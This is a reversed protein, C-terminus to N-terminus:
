VSAKKRKKPVDSCDLLFPAIRYGRSQEVAQCDKRLETAAGKPTKSRLYQRHEWKGKSFFWAVLYIGHSWGPNSELYKGVLQSEISDSIESNQARKVEIILTILDDGNGRSPLAEIKIDVRENWRNVEVERNVAVSKLDRKLWAAIEKSVFEEREPSNGAWVRHLNHRQLDDQFRSLSGLVVDLLDNANRIISGHSIRVLRLLEHPQVPTWALLARTQRAENLNWRYINAEADPLSNLFRQIEAIEGRRTLTQLLNRRLSICEDTPSVFTPERSLPPDDQPPFLGFFLLLLDGIQRSEMQDISKEERRGLERVNEVFLKKASKPNGAILPWAKDKLRGEAFFWTVGAVARSVDYLLEADDRKIADLRALIFKDAFAPDHKLLHLLGDRMSGHKIDSGGIFEALEESLERTWSSEFARLDLLWGEGEGKLRRDLLTRLWGRSRDPELQCALRVLEQHEEEGNNFADVVAGIWKERVEDQLEVNALIEDRLWEIARYAAESRNTACNSEDREDKFVFLFRRACDRITARDEVTQQLFLTSNEVGSSAWEDSSTDGRLGHAVNIWGGSKGDRCQALGKDFVDKWTTHKKAIAAHRKRNREQHRKLILEGAKELRVLTDHIDLRPKRIPPFVDRVESYELYRQQLLERHKEREESQSAYRIAIAWNKRQAPTAEAIGDLVFKLDIEAGREIVLDVEESRVEPHNLVAEIFVSFQENTAFAASRATDGSDKPLPLYERAKEIWLLVLLDAIEPSDLNECALDFVRNAFDEYPSLTDFCGRKKRLFDLAAGLDQESVAKPLAFNLFSRYSGFYSAQKTPSLFGLIDRVPLCKPVLLGLAVGKLTDDHDTGMGDAAARLLKDKWEEPNEEVIHLTYAAEHAMVDDPRELIRWVSDALAPLHCIRALHLAFRRAHLNLSEDLMVPRLLKEIGSFRLSHSAKSVSRDPGPDGSAAKEILRTVISCKHTDGLPSLDAHLLAEPHRALILEFFSSGDPSGALWAATQLLQPAVLEEDSSQAVFFLRRLEDVALGAVFEGALQEALTRHAFKVALTSDTEQTAVTEFLRTETIRDLKSRSIRFERGLPTEDITGDGLIDAYTLCDPDSSIDSRVLAKKGGFILLAAIRRALKIKDDPLWDPESSRLKSERGPNWEEVLGNIASHYLLRRSAPLRKSERFEAILMNLTIPWRALSVAECREIERFFAQPQGSVESEVAQNVDAYRLPCMEYVFDTGQRGWLSGLEKGTESQWQASRCTLVLRVRDLPEAKLLEILSSLLTQERQLAEDIGDVLFLIDKGSKLAHVWQNSRVSLEPLLNGTGFAVAQRFIVEIGENLGLGERTRKLETTKGSGPPGCLVLVPNDVIVASLHKCKPNYSLIGESEPDDLFGEGTSGCSVEVGEPRWFRKWPHYLVEEM